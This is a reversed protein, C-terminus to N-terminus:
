SPLLKPRGWFNQNWTKKDKADQKEACEKSCFVWRGPPLEHTKCFKCKKNEIKLEQTKRKYLCRYCVDKGLFDNVNTFRKCEPCEIM